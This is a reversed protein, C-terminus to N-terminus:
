SDLALYEKICSELLGIPGLCNLMATHFRKLDINFGDPNTFKERLRLIERQGVKYTVAQAPMSIYRDIQGEAASVSLATNETLFKIANARSWGFKHIGTDVILRASRLLDFILAGVEKM